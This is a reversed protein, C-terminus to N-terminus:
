APVREEVLDVLWSEHRIVMARSRSSALVAGLATQFAEAGARDDFDLDVLVRGPAGDVLGIRYARVGHEARFRAYADFAAKWDDYDHVTNDIHLTTTM